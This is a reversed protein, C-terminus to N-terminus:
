KCMREGALEVFAISHPPLEVVGDAVSVGKPMPLSGDERLALPVNNVTIRDSFVPGNLVFATVSQNGKAGVHEVSVRASSTMHFNILVAVHSVGSRRGCHVSGHMWIPVPLPSSESVAFVDRGVLLKWFFAIWYSPMPKLDPDAHM